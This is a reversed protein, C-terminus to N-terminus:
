VVLAGRWDVLAVALQSAALVTFSGLVVVLVWYVAKITAVSLGTSQWDFAWKSHAQGVLGATILATILLIPGLYLLLPIRAAIRQMADLKNLRVEALQELEPLGKDVLYYGVHRARHTPSTRGDLGSAGDIEVGRHALALAKQAVDIESLRTKKAIRETAHRYRDRTAFDMRGYFGDPDQLLVKEVLSMSEVFNRWDVAGLVRLSGISNSISVQDAAQQQNELQVSQEITMGTESLRQEIWNLPLVLAPGRGQLRRALEAVFASVMPPKSRAMDAIVLILSTPDNEATEMMKDAWENALNRVLRGAAIRVAVRRLNEIVALRLMIPTAWIEGLKLPTVSQYAAVFRSLVDMDVRGDGHSIIEIAIDYVRPRGASAATSDSPVNELRPLERSYGKPLHRKATRIQEEILYFNDLLWEGAPTIPLKSTVAETLLNCVSILAAENKALRSLLQDPARGSALRHSAALSRGHQEMQDASFLESRLPAEGQSLVREVQASGHFRTKIQRVLGVFGSFLAGTIM